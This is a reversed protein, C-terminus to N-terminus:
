KRMILRDLGIGILPAVVFIVLALAPLAPWQWDVRLQWYLFAAFAGVAAQAFNFIGTTTYVVVIGTAYLASLAGIAVGTLLATLVNKTTFPALNAAQRGHWIVFIALLLFVGASIGVPSRLVAVRAAFRGRARSM